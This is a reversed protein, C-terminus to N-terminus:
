RTNSYLKILSDKWNLINLGFSKIGKKKSLVSYKPRQAFTPYNDTKVLDILDLKNSIKIIEKAFDYWNAEGSNSYHYIGYKKSLSSILYLIFSALDNANTPTGLESATIKLKKETKLKQLITKYFNKGYQSYLWSTRIIFYKKLIEQIYEEGRLKSKGYENIPNAIDEESYPTNKKGDFVYDTSIHILVIDREQCIQALNKAGDANILFAKQPEKEAKEVDTYAACNIVYDFSSKELFLVISKKDTIDLNKSNAFCLDLNLFDGKLGKISKGLQGDAGTVLVQINHLKKHAM